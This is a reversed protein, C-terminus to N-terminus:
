RDPPTRQVDSIAHWVNLAQVHAAVDHVRLISAGRAVAALGAAITGGLRETPPAGGALEGIFRKRSVGVLVPRGIDCLRDLAALLALNHETTKGFGIGPDVVIDDVGAARCADVRRALFERVEGVVDGYEAHVQMTRPDDTPMHNIVIRAQTAAAVRVLVPDVFGTVDNIIRAGEAMAREATVAHRTDISVTVGQAALESVVPLVRDCEEASDVPEAGPRTSEGGVDVIDAGEAVLRMGHAIADDIHRFRGGDSFSDPTVNVIGMVQTRVVDSQGM